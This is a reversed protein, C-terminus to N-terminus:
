DKLGFASKIFRGLREVVSERETWTVWQGDRLGSFRRDDHVRMFFSSVVKCEHCIGAANIVATKDTPLSIQGRVNEGPLTERCRVCSFNLRGIKGGNAFMLPLQSKISPMGFLAVHRESVPIMYHHHMRM